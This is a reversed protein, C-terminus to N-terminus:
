IETQSSVASTLLYGSATCTVAEYTDEVVRGYTLRDWEDRKAEVTMEDQWWFMTLTSFSPAAYTGELEGVRSCVLITQAPMAYGRTLTAGKRSTTVVCNEVIIRYGYLSSPLGYKGNPSTGKEIEERAWYSGKIYEHIEPSAALQRATQPNMIAFFKEPDSDVVGLTDQNILDAIAGLANKVYPTTSTGQDLLGGVLNVATGTHDTSLNATNDSNTAAQWTSATTAATLMRVTRATMCQAAKNQANQEVIPWVAQKVAKDGLRFKYSNRQTTFPIFNFSETGDDNARDPQGDPWQFDQINIVRAAEQATLKLYYAITAPTEVYQVYKPLHFKKVDRSFGIRLRGSIDPPVFTNNGAPFGPGTPNPM